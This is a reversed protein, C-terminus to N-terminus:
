IKNSNFNKKFERERRKFEFSERLMTSCMGIILRSQIINKFNGFESKKHFSIDFNYNKVLNKYSIVEAQKHESDVDAKGSIIFKKKYKKCFKFVHNALLRVHDQVDYNQELHIHGFDQNFKYHPESIFCIDYLNEKM